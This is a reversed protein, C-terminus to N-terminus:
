EYLFQYHKKCISTSIDTRVARKQGIIKVDLRKFEPLVYEKFYELGTDFGDVFLTKGLKAKHEIIEIKVFTYDDLVEEKNKFKCIIDCSSSSFVLDEIKTPIMMEKDNDNFGTMTKIRHILREADKRDDQLKIAMEVPRKYKLLILSRKLGDLGNKAIKEFETNVLAKIIKIFSVILNDEESNYYFCNGHAWMNRLWVLRDRAAESILLKQAIEKFSLYASKKRQFNNLILIENELELFTKAVIPIVFQEECFIFPADRNKRSLINMDDLAARINNKSEYTLYNRNIEFLQHNQFILNIFSWQQATNLFLSIVAFMGYVTINNFEDNWKEDLGLFKYCNKVYALDYTLDEKMKKIDFQTASHVNLARIRKYLRVFNNLKEDDFIRSIFLFNKKLISEAGM